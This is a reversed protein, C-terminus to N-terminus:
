YTISSNIQDDYLNVEKTIITLDHTGYKFPRVEVETPVGNVNITVNEKHTDDHECEVYVIKRQVDIFRVKYPKTNNDVVYMFQDLDIIM